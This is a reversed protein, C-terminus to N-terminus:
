LYYFLIYILIIYNIKNDYTEAHKSTVPINDKEPNCYSKM